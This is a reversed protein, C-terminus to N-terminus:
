LPKINALQMANNVGYTIAHALEEQFTIQGEYPYYWQNKTQFTPFYYKGWVDIEVLFEDTEIDNLQQGIECTEQACFEYISVRANSGQSVIDISILFDQHPGPTRFYLGSKTM